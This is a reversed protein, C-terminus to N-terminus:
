RNGYLIRAPHVDPSAGPTAGGHITDEARAAGIANLAKVFIRNNIFPSKEILAREEPSYIATLAKRVNAVTQPLKAGGIDPDAQTEKLWTDNAATAEAQRATQAATRSEIDRALIKEAQAQTLGNDKAFKEAAKVEDTSLTSGEPAKLEWAAAEAPKAAADPKAPDAPKAAESLISAPM